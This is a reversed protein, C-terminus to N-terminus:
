TDFSIVHARLANFIVVVDVVEQIIAGALPSFKGTAFILMLVLSLGIGVLISQRAIQFTRKAIAVATAVRSIDDLMIVMDASESAATSGRAGLAIGIDAGTLIPADNVGDGVFALPRNKVEELIRLKDAPLTDAHVHTIGLKQAIARAAAQNDGTIMLFDGVGLDRLTDLTAKSEPRVTDKLTIIGALSGDVAIYIATQKIQSQRVGKPLSVGAEELLSYRGVLVQQGKVTARLGQGAIEQIQKAKILKLHKTRASSVVAQALIHNSSQELSAALALAEDQKYPGFTKISDVQLVGNTLTGTKDFAITKAEALRELASGTKVIIGYRSARAMGSILAIPAALLLPCPTAVVIVELFRIAHGSVAWVGLAIAYAVLTFPLSYRDALRVFPAQSSAAGRVLRIIQQYQSDEASATAQGTVAGDLNIAGSLLQQGLTKTQPLSEGTLSSEDFSASGEIVKADVPVLEGAKIILKDGVRLESVPVDMTKGKRIVHAQQPAHALLADLESRARHEAYDELTEGGTLMLVVVIAAWYQGLIVSVIIATAALIDIGYKGSRVDQWMSWVLPLVEIIAVSSLLWRAATHQHTFQLVLGIIVTLLAAGFLRYERSFQLLRKM